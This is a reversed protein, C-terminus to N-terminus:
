SPDASIRYQNPNYFSFQLKAIWNRRSIGKKIIECISPKSINYKKHFAPRDGTFVEGTKTNTFTYIKADYRPNNKGSNNKGKSNESRLKKLQNAKELGYLQEYSKGKFMKTARKSSAECVEKSHTKGFMGNLKGKLIPGRNGGITMNYGDNLSNNEKIFYPEMVNLTYNEDYSQYLVEWTFNDWGYKRIANYFIINSNLKQSNRKHSKQRNPWHSDFGIYSKDTLINTAKYISYITSM